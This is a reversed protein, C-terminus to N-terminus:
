SYPHIRTFLRVKIIDNVVFFVLVYGWVILALRLGIPQM